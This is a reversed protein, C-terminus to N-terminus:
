APLGLVGVGFSKEVVALIKEGPHYSEGDKFADDHQEVAHSADDAVWERAGNSTFVLWTTLNPLIEHGHARQDCASEGPEIGNRYADICADCYDVDPSAGCAIVDDPAKM